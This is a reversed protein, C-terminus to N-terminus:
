WFLQALMWHKMSLLSLFFFFILKVKIAKKTEKEQQEISQSRFLMFVNQIHFPIWWILKNSKHTIHVTINPAIYQSPILRKKEEDSKTGKREVIFNMLWFRKQGTSRVSITPMHTGSMALDWIYSYKLHYEYDCIAIFNDCTGADVVNMAKKNWKCNM